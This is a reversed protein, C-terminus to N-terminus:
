FSILYKNSKTIMKWTQTANGMLWEILMFQKVFCFFRNKKCIDLIAKLFIIGINGAKCAAIM